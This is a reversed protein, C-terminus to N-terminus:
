LIKMIDPTSTIGNSAAGFEHSREFEHPPLIIRLLSAIVWYGKGTIADDSARVVHQLFNLFM